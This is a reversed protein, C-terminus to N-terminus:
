DALVLLTSVAAVLLILLFVLIPVMVTYTNSPVAEESQEVVQEAPQGDEGGPLEPPGFDEEVVIPDGAQEHSVISFRLDPGLESVRVIDGSRLPSAGAAPLLEQNIYWDGLGCNRIRWGYEDAVLEAAKGAALPHQAVDFAIDCDSEGGVTIRQQHFRRQEGQRAGSLILLDASM